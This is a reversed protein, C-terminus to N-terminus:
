MHQPLGRTHVNRTRVALLDPPVLNMRQVCDFSSRFKSDDQDHCKETSPASLVLILVVPISLWVNTIHRFEQHREPIRFEQDYAFGM